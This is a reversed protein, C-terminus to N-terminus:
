SARIVRRRRIQSSCPSSACPQRAIRSARWQCPKLPLEDYFSQQQALMLQYPHNGLQASWVLTHRPVVADKKAGPLLDEPFRYLEDGNSVLRQAGNAQSFSFGFSYRAGSQKYPVFLMKERDLTESVDIRPQNGPLTIITEPWYSGPREIRVRDFLPGSEHHLVVAGAFASGTHNGPDRM